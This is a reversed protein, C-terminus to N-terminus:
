FFFKPFNTALTDLSIGALAQVGTQNILCIIVQLLSLIFYAIIMQRRDCVDVDELVELLRIHFIILPHELFILPEGAELFGNVLHCAHVNGNLSGLGHYVHELVLDVLCIVELNLADHNLTLVAEPHVIRAPHGCLPLLHLSEAFLDAAFPNYLPVHFADIIHIVLLQRQIDRIRNHM